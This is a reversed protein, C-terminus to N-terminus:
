ALSKVNRPDVRNNIILLNYIFVFMCENSFYKFLFFVLENILESWGNAVVKIERM